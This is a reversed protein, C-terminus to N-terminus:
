KCKVSCISTHIKSSLTFVLYSLKFSYIGFLVIYSAMLGYGFMLFFFSVLIIGFNLFIALGKLWYCHHLIILFPLLAKVLSVKRKEYPTLCIKVM